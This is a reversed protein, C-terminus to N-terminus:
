EDGEYEQRRREEDELFLRYRERVFLVLLPAGVTALILVIGLSDTVYAMRDAYLTADSTGEVSSANKLIEGVWLLLFMGIPQFIFYVWKALPVASPALWRLTGGSPHKACLVCAAGAMLVFGLLHGSYPLLDSRKLALYEAEALVAGIAFALLPQYRIWQPILRFHNHIIRGLLMYPMAVTLFNVPIYSLAYGEGLFSLPLSLHLVGSLDCLIVSALLLVLFAVWDYRRLKRFLWFFFLAYVTAQLLWITTCLPACWDNFILLRFAAGATFYYLPTGEAMWAYAATVLLYAALVILLTKATRKLYKLLDAGNRLVLFGYVTFLTPAAFNFLPQIDSFFPLPLGYAGVILFVVCLLRLLDMSALMTRHKKPKASESVTQETDM